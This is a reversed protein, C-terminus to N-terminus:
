AQLKMCDVALKNILKHTEPQQSLKYNLFHKKTSLEIKRGEKQLLKSEQHINILDAKIFKM